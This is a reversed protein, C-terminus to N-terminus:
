KVSDQDTLVRIGVYVAFFLSICLAWYIALTLVISSSLPLESPRLFYDVILLLAVLIAPGSVAVLLVLLIAKPLNRMPSPPVRLQNLEIEFPANERFVRLSVIAKNTSTDVKWIRALTGSYEGDVILATDGPSWCMDQSNMVRNRKAVDPLAPPHGKASVSPHIHNYAAVLRDVANKNFEPGSSARSSQVRFLNVQVDILAM